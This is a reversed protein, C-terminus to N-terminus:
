DKAISVTNPIIPLVIHSPRDPDHYVTQHAPKFTHEEGPPDGTNPNRDYKPFFSSLIELRLRHGPLFANSVANLEIQYEYVKGPTPPDGGDVSNRYSARLIGEALPVARGNPHVDVLVSAFDTDAADSAAHLIVRPIGTVELEELLPQSTYVLV